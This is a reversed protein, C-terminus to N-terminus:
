AHIEDLKWDIVGYRYTVVPVALKNIVAIMNRASFESQLVLKSRRKYEKQTRSKM